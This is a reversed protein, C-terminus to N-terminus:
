FIVSYEIVKFILRREEPSKEWSDWLFSRWTTKEEDESLPRTHVLVDNNKLPVTKDLVSSAM